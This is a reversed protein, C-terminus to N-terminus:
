KEGILLEQKITDLATIVPQLSARVAALHKITKQAIPDIAALSNTTLDNSLYMLIEKLDSLYVLYADKIGADAAPFEAYIKALKVRREESLARIQPNTYNNGQKQWESFYDLSKSNMEAERQLVLNGQIELAAVDAKYTDYAKALDPPAAKMMAQLSIETAEIQTIITRIEKDVDQISNTVQISRDRGTTACSVTSAVLVLTAVALIVITGSTRKMRSGKRERPHDPGVPRPGPDAQAILLAAPGKGDATPPPGSKRYTGICTRQRRFATKSAAGIIENAIENAVAGAVEGDVEGDTEGDTEDDTEDDAEGDAEGDAADV